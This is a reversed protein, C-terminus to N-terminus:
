FFTWQFTWRLPDERVSCVQTVLVWTFFCVMGADWVGGRGGGAGEGVLSLAEADHHQCRLHSTTTKRKIYILDCRRQESADPTKRKNTKAGTTPCPGKERTYSVDGDILEQYVYQHADPYNGKHCQKLYQTAAVM